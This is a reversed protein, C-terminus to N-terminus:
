GWIISCEPYLKSVCGEIVDMFEEIGDVGTFDLTFPSNIRGPKNAAARAQTAAFIKIQRLIEKLVTTNFSTIPAPTEIRIKKGDTIAWQWETHEDMLAKVGIGSDTKGKTGQGLRRAVRSKTGDYPIAYFRGDEGMVIMDPNGSQLPLVDKGDPELVPNVGLLFGLCLVEQEDVTGDDRVTCPYRGKISLGGNKHHTPVGFYITRTM